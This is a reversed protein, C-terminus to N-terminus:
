YLSPSQRPHDPLADACTGQLQSRLSLSPAPWRSVLLFFHVFTKLLFLKGDEWVRAKSEEGGPEPLNSHLDPPEGPSNGWYHQVHPGSASVQCFQHSSLHSNRLPPPLSKSPPSPNLHHAAISWGKTGRAAESHAETKEHTFHPTIELDMDPQATRLDSPEPSIQM